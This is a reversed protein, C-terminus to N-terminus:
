RCVHGCVTPCSFLFSVKQFFHALDPPSSPSLVNCECTHIKDFAQTLSFGLHYLLRSAHLFLSSVCLCPAGAAKELREVHPTSPIFGCPKPMPESQTFLSLVESTLGAQLARQPWCHDLHPFIHLKRRLACQGLM